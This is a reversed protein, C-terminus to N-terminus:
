LTKCQSRATLNDLNCAIISVKKLIEDAPSNWNKTNFGCRVDRFYGLLFANRCQDFKKTHSCGAAQCGLPFLSIQQDSIVDQGMDWVDIIKDRPQFNRQFVLADDGHLKRM